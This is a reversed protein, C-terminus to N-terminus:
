LEVMRSNRTQGRSSIKFYKKGRWHRYTYSFIIYIEIHNKFSIGMIIIKVKEVIIGVRKMLGYIEWDVVIHEM